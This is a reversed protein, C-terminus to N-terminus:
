LEKIKGQKLLRAWAEDSVLWDHLQDLVFASNLARATKIAYFPDKKRSLNILTQVQQIKDLDKIKQAKEQIEQEPEQAELDPAQMQEKIQEQFVERAQEQQAEPLVEQEVQKEEPIPPAEINSQQMIDEPM